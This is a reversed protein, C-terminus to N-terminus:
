ARMAPVWEERPASNWYAGKWSCIDRFLASPRPWCATSWITDPVFKARTLPAIVLGEFGEDLSHLHQEFKVATAGDKAYLGVSFAEAWQREEATLVDWGYVARALKCNIDAETVAMTWGYSRAMKFNQCVFNQLGLDRSPRKYEPLLDKESRILKLALPFTAPRILVEIREGYKRYQEITTAM